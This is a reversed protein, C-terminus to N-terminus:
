FAVLYQIAQPAPDLPRAQDRTLGEYDNHVEIVDYGEQELIDRLVNRLCVDGDIVLIRAMHPKGKRM